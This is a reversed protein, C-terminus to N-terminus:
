EPTPLGGNGPTRFTSCCWYWRRSSCSGLGYNVRILSVAVVALVFLTVVLGWAGTVSILLAVGLLAGLVTGGVRHITSTTSLWLQPKIVVAITILVWYGHELGLALRIALGAAAAIAFRAAYRFWFSSPTLNARLM